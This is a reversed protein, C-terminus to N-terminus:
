GCADKSALGNLRVFDLHGLTEGPQAVASRVLDFPFAAGPDPRRPYGVIGKGESVLQEQETWPCTCIRQDVDAHRVIGALPISYRTRIDKILRVLADVQAAPFPDKGDGDNVLEIGISRGNVDPNGAHYAIINERVGRAVTGERGIVYHISVQRPGTEMKALYYEADNGAVPPALTYRVRGDDTCTPGSLSHIVIMDIPRQRPGGTRAAQEGTHKACAAVTLVLGTLLLFRRV